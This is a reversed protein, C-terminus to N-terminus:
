EKGGNEMRQECFGGGTGAEGGADPQEGLSGGHRNQQGMEFCCSGAAVEEKKGGPLRIEASCNAPVTIEYRYGQLRREWKVVVMGYVSRYKACAYTFSGGPRPAITFHNEGSVQIGCMTGFLWEVCAGKSYHNLSAIGGQASTGEWSEWVTTAGSKPMFLWGPMEENELLRYASEIDIETLVDLILPTSLFGTGLRWGYRELAKLLREKAYARQEEDLLGLALPRVLMAQRDTDLGFGPLKRLGRYAERCGDAYLRYQKEDETKGMEGAIEAMCDMVYATYATSVEPHPLVMDKWDNPYVDAPEAWEGYSQGCNVLYKAARGKLRVPKALPTWKGCRGMMFEAYRRMGPYYRELIRRDGYQKWLRYPMLVGADAWGVSGNMPAMYFDVGGEPAIQPLCGDKRQWDYVDRLYKDAFPLYDFLYSATRCFIQADGTWGHRERTPCDTPIDLSNNRASWLTCDVFRNLLENSSTFFGTQEMDSYVAIATFDEPRFAADTDVLVYRFGFVAFATKYDNRGAKCIYEVQQLPTTKKKNACQINKQTFEGDGDLMEGFRLSVRQGEEAQLFFFVYGAINQGFDLVTKGAPTTVVTPHFHEHETVPVNNSASPLVGHSTLKAKGQYSPQMRADYVEGDKNDAFRVPGDNSWDWSEDSCIFQVSGDALTLELQALLKTERGYANRIGWAGVSGRYWGDALWLTLVNEGEKVLATVDYTQYQIRRRYDTHGPALIFDGAREGNLRAEYIGCATAYLRAKVVKAVTFAKRFCDVPYRKRKNVQYNGTIWKAKWDSEKLLGLEFVSESWEGPCDKEDWLCIQWCVASRSQLPIGDCVAQMSGSVVKGTDWLVSGDERAVIRYATQSVGGECNWMLRPKIIDIGMPEKLYETRLRIAKM